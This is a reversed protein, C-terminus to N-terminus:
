SVRYSASFMLEGNASYAVAGSSLTDRNNLLIIQTGNNAVYGTIQKEYTLSAPSALTVACFTQSSGSTFPLGNIRLNGSGTGSNWFLYGEVTVVRGIKTYVGAQSTYSVTGATTTGVPVPTWTGEEYDDLTNPDTCASQTAPFTIGNSIQLVGGASVAAATGILLRGSSDFQGRESGSTGFKLAGGANNFLSVDASSSSDNALFFLRDGDNDYMEFGGQATSATISDNDQIRIYPASSAVHLVTNVTTTGIALRNNVADVYVVGNDINVNGSADIRLRETSATQFSLTETATFQGSTNLVNSGIRIDSTGVTVATGVTIGTSGDLRIPM